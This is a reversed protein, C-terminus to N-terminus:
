VHFQNSTTYDEVVQGDGGQAWHDCYVMYANDYHPVNWQGALYYSGAGWAHQPQGWESHFGWVCGWLFDDCREMTMTMQQTLGIGTCNQYSTDNVTTGQVGADFTNGVCGTITDNPTIGTRQQSSANWTTSRKVVGADSKQPGNPGPSDAHGRQVSMMSFTLVLSVLAVARVAKM